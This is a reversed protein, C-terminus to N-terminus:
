FVTLLLTIGFTSYPVIIAQSILRYLFTLPILFFSHLSFIIQFVKLAKLIKSRLAGFLFGGESISTPRCWMTKKLKLVLIYKRSCVDTYWSSHLPYWSICDPLFVLSNFLSICNAALSPNPIAASSFLQFSFTHFTVTHPSFNFSFPSQMM